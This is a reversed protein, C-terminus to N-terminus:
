KEGRERVWSSIREYAVGGALTAMLVVDGHGSAVDVYDAIEPASRKPEVGITTAAVPTETTAEVIGDTALQNLDETLQGVAEMGDAYAENRQDQGDGLDEPPLSAVGASANWDAPDGAPGFQSEIKGVEGEVDSFTYEFPGARVGTIKPSDDTIQPSDDGLKNGVLDDWNKAPLEPATVRNSVDVEGAHPDVHADLNQDIQTSPQNDVAMDSDVLEDWSEARLEPSTARNPVDVEGVHPDVHADPKQDIQTYSPNDISM